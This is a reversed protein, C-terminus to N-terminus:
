WPSPRERSSVEALLEAAALHRGIGRSAARDDLKADAEDITLGGNILLGRAQNITSWSTLARAGSTERPGMLDEDVRFDRWPRQTLWTLDAALDVFAGPQAAYLILEIADMDPAGTTSDGHVSFRMSARIRERDSDSEITTIELWPEGVQPLLVTLGLSSPVALWAESMLLTLTAAIDPATGSPSDELMENLLHLDAILGAPITM